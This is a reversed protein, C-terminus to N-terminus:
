KYLTKRLIWLYQELEKMFEDYHQSYNDIDGSTRGFAIIKSRFGEMTWLVIQKAKEPQIDDKFYSDNAKELITELLTNTTLGPIDDPLGDPFLEEMSFVAKVLFNHIIPYDFSIDISKKSARWINELFDDNDLLVAESEKNAITLAYRYLFLFLEKKSGFYHFLLGKSIGAQKVIEDTNAYSYGKSFEKLAETILRERKEEKMVMIKHENLSDKYSFEDKSNDKTM